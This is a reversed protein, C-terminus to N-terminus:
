LEDLIEVLYQVVKPNLKKTKKRLILLKEQESLDNTEVKFRQLFEGIGFM